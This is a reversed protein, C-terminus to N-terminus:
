TGARTAAVPMAPPSNRMVTKVSAQTALVNEAQGAEAAQTVIPAARM